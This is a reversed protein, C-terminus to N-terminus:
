KGNGGFHLLLGILAFGDTIERRGIMEQVEDHSFWRFAGVENKDWKGTSHGAGCRVVHVRMNSIGNLPYFVYVQEHGYTGYGTEEQVERQAADLASEGEEIGGAPLEWTTMGTPYRTNCEMLIEREQNEVIVVVAGLGFDLFHYDEIIHGTPLVVKDRYLNVWSSEYIVTRGLRVPMNENQNHNM